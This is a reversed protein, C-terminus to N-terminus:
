SGGLINRLHKWQENSKVSGHGARSLAGLMQIKARQEEESEPAWNCITDHLEAPTTDTDNMKTETSPKISSRRGTILEQRGLDTVVPVRQQWPPRGLTKWEVLERRELAALSRGDHEVTGPTRTAVAQLTDLQNTNLKMVIFSYCVTSGRDLAKTLVRDLATRYLIPVM